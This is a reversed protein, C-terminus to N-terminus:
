EVDTELAVELEVIDGGRLVTFNAETSDQLLQYVDIIGQPDNLEIGNIGTVVDNAKFGVQRFLKSNAGPTVRYGIIAGDQQVPAVRVIESLAAPDEYVMQRLEAFDEMSATRAITQNGPEAIAPAVASRPPVPTSVKNIDYLWLSEYRGNNSIIVRDMLIKSLTVKTGVPLKDGVGYQDQIKRSVIVARARAQDGSYLTGLLELDLKTEAANLEDDSMVPVAADVVPLSGSADGFLDFGKLRAIDVENQPALASLAAGAPLSQEALGVTAPALLLWFLRSLSFLAWLVFLIVLINRIQSLSLVASGNISSLLSRPSM